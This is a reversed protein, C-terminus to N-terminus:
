FALGREYKGVIFAVYGIKVFAAIVITVIHAAVQQMISFHSAFPFSILLSITMIILSICLIAGGIQTVKKFNIMVVGKFMCKLHM